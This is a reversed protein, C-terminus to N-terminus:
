SREGVLIEEVEILPLTVTIYDHPALLVVLTHTDGSPYAKVVHSTNVLVDGSLAPLVVFRPSM